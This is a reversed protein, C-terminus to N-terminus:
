CYKSDKRTKCGNQIQARATTHSSTNQTDEEHHRTNTQSLPINSTMSVQKLPPLHMCCSVNQIYARSLPMKM